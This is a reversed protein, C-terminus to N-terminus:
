GTCHREVDAVGLLHFSLPKEAIDGVMVPVQDTVVLLTRSCGLCGRALLMQELTFPALLFNLLPQPPKCGPNSGVSRCDAWGSADCAQLGRSM